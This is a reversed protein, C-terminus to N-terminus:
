GPERIAIRSWMDYSRGAPDFAHMMGEWTMGMWEALRNVGGAPDARSWMEIRRFEPFRQAQDACRRIERLARIRHRAGAHPSVILWALARGHWQPVLGGAAMVRGNDLLAAGMTGFACFQAAWGPIRALELSAPDAEEQVAWLVLEETLPVLRGTM